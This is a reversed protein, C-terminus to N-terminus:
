EFVTSFQKVKKSKTHSDSSLSKLLETLLIVDSFNLYILPPM